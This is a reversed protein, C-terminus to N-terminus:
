PEPIPLREHDPEAFCYPDLFPFLGSPDLKTTTDRFYTLSARPYSIEHQAGSTFKNLPKGTKGEENLWHNFRWVHRMRIPGNLVMMTKFDHTIEYAESGETRTSFNANNDNIRSGGSTRGFQGFTPVAGFHFSGPVNQKYDDNQGSCHGLEHAIVLCGYQGPDSFENFPYGSFRATDDTRTKIRLCVISFPRDAGVNGVVYSGKSERM